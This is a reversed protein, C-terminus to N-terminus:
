DWWFYWGDNAMLGAALERLSVGQDVLDPCYDYQERALVLAEERTAPRRRSRLYLTDSFMGVLELDHRKTWYRFAAVHEHPFPCANWGGFRAHAFVETWDSTPFTAIVVTEVPVTVIETGRIEWRDPFSLVPDAYPVSPWNGLRPGEGLVMGLLNLGEVFRRAEPSAGLSERAAAEEAKIRRRLDDPFAFGAAKALITQTTEEPGLGASMMEVLMGVSEADGLVVPTGGAGKMAQWTKLASAAPVRISPFPFTEALQLRDERQQRLHDESARAVAEVDTTQAIAGAFPYPLLTLGLSQLFRRRHLSGKSRM